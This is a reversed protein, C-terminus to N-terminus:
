LTYYAYITDSFNVLAIMLCGGKIVLAIMLCGGKLKVKSFSLGSSKRLKLQYPTENKLLIRQQM